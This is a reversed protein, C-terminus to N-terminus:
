LQLFGSGIRCFSCRSLLLALAPQRFTNGLDGLQLLHEIRVIAIRQQQNELGHVGRALVAGNARHEGADIRGAAVHNRELRGRGFLEVM